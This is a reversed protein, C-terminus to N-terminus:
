PWREVNAILCRGTTHMGSYPGTWNVIWLPTVSTPCTEGMKVRVYCVTGRALGVWWGLCCRLRNLWKQIPRLHLSYLANDIPFFVGLIAGEGECKTVRGSCSRAVAMPLMCLFNSLSRMCPELSIRTSLCDSVCEYQDCYKAVTGAPLAIFRYIVVLNWISQTCAIDTAVWKPSFGSLAGEASHQSSELILKSSPFLFKYLLDQVLTRGVCLEAVLMDCVAHAIVKLKVNLRWLSASYLSAWYVDGILYPINM